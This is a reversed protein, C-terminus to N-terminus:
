IQNTDIGIKRFNENIKDMNRYMGNQLEYRYNEREINNQEEELEKEIEYPVRVFEFSIEGQTKSEEEGKIIVYNACTTELVNGDKKPNRIADFSNGVSGVNLLTKNYIKDMYQHHIHGYIVVDAVQNSITNETPEFMEYKIYPMDQNIIAKNNVKPTAHFLRVLRGSLYFEHCFPLNLLYARDEKSILSQNWQIRKAEIEAKEELFHEKSFYEDTNGQIVVGCHERILQICEKPHIGKAIIDGLCYIKDVKKRKIDELTAKLAELNGHIDSIIAIKMETRGKEKRMKKMIAYKEEKDLAENQHRYFITKLLLVCIHWELLM